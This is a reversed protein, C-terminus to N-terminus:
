EKPSFTKPRAGHLILHILIYFMNMPAAIDRNVLFREDEHGKRHCEGTCEKIRYGKQEKVLEMQAHCKPCKQSSNFENVVIVLFFRKFYNVAMVPCTSRQGKMSSMSGDGFVVIPAKVM